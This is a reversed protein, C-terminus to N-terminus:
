LAAAWGTPYLLGSCILIAMQKACKKLFQVQQTPHKLRRCLIIAKQRAEFKLFTSWVAIVTSDPHWM